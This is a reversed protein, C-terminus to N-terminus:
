GRRTAAGRRRRGAPPVVSIASSRAPAFVSCDSSSTSSAAAARIAAVLSSSRSRGDGFTGTGLVISSSNTLLTSAADGLMTSRNRAARRSVFRSGFLYPCGGHGRGKELARFDLAYVLDGVSGVKLVAPRFPPHDEPRSREGQVQDGVGVEDVAGHDFTALHAAIALQGIPRGAGAPALTHATRAGGALQALVAARAAARVRLDAPYRLLHAATPLAPRGRREPPIAARSRAAQADGQRTCARRPSSRSVTATTSVSLSGTGIQASQM